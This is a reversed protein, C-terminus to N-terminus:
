ETNQGGEDPLPSTVKGLSYTDAKAPPLFLKVYLDEIQNQTEHGIFYIM